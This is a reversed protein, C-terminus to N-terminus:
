FLGKEKKEKYWKVFKILGEKINTKPFYQLM